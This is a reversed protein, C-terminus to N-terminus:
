PARRPSARGSGAGARAGRCRGRPRRGSAPRLGRPSARRAPRRRRALAQAALRRQGRDGVGLGDLHDSSSSSSASPGPRPRRRARASRARRRSRPRSAGAARRPGSASPRRGSRRRARLRDRELLGLRALSSQVGSFSSAPLLRLGLAEPRGPSARTRVPLRRYVAAGMLGRDRHDDLLGRAALAREVDVRAQEVLPDDEEARRDVLVDRVEHDGLQDVELGLVGVLVDRDVDVRRAARDVRAERDVVRHLVYLGVHLRDADADRHAHARQQQGAALLALPHHRRVRLDQDVLGGAPKWPWTVSMSIWARSIMSM